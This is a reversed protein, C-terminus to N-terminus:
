WMVDSEDLNRRIFVISQLFHLAGPVTKNRFFSEYQSCHKIVFVMCLNRAHIPFFLIRDEFSLTRMATDPPTLEETKNFKTCLPTM